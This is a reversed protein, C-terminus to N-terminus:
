SDDQVLDDVLFLFKHLAPFVVRSRVLIAAQLMTSPSIEPCEKDGERCHNLDAGGSELAASAYFLATPQLSPYFVITYPVPSAPRDSTFTPGLEPTTQPYDRKVHLHLTDAISGAQGEETQGQDVEDGAKTVNKRIVVTRSGITVTEYELSKGEDDFRFGEPLLLHWPEEASGSSPPAAADGRVRRWSM